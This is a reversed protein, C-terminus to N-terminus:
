RIGGVAKVVTLNRAHLSPGMDLGHHCFQNSGEEIPGFIARFTTQMNATSRCEAFSAGVKCLAKTDEHMLNQVREESIGM